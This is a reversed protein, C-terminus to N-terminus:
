AKYFWAEFGLDLSSVFCVFLAKLGTSLSWLCYSRTVNASHVTALYSTATATTLSLAPISGSEKLAEVCGGGGGM